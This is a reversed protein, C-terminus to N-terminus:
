RSHQLWLGRLHAGPRRRSPLSQPETLPRNEVALCGHFVTQTPLVIVSAGSEKAIRILHETGGPGDGPMGDWLALLTFRSTGLAIAENILWLNAREWSNYGARTLLWSPLEDSKALCPVSSFRRVLQDFRREWDSGAPSVSENRFLDPPLPLLLKSSVNLEACVEHFLIDGGSAGGALGVIGGDTRRIEEELAARIADHAAQECRAPFRPVPRDPVDIMHGTFLVVRAPVSQTIVPPESIPFVSLAADVRDSFVGLRKFLDLQSRASDFFFSPAGALASEYAYAIRGTRNSTLFQYDALSIELWRDASGKRALRRRAAELSRAVAGALTQRQSQMDALQRQAEADEPFRMAWEEPWRTALETALTVLSLANLGPYFSNLDEDFGDRYKELALLLYPSGLARRGAEDHEQAAWASRWRDKLNRGLLSLAEARMTPTAADNGLVRQLALDAANLDGLRQHITGLLLNAEVDAPYLRSLSEWTSRASRYAKWNFQERGVIRLGESAWPFSRAELALLGLLGMQGNKSALDVDERFRLPVPLFRSRDQVKLDPLLRFVPSDDRESLLTAKLADVLVELASSPNAADYELYRDTRLDFPVEDEAGREARPKDARARILFTRYPQLAHRIGLEYFVNANHISVDAVVLDAVLLQQFMDERINGAELIKSTTGGEAGLRALAPQILQQEVADFDIGNRTGFPRVIFARMM